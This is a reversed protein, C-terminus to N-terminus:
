TRAIGFRKLMNKDNETLEYAIPQDLVAVTKPVFSWRGRRGCLPCHSPFIGTVVELSGACDLYRCFVM